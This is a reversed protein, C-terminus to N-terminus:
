ARVEFVMNFPTETAKRFHSYGADMAVKRLKLEGAQAGLGLGVEQSLSAPTCIMTSAGYFVRGVPNLNDKLCDHAFPEVIMWTGDDALTEKVHKGAGVPDGMDHLCDFMAVLDYDAPPFDKASAQEFTIRGAVGAEAAAAKAREISPLHYDFGFFTSNPYAEALLITSAGHGCGVDAVIAGAELKEKLGDIAPIWESILHSNYGPRFFRETGRFLCASHEHWGVGSGTRFANAIKPEDLWMSQVVDFAGTFFAPSNEEAFVMAQEPTLYFRETDDDYSVYDAAAQASLWERVYREKVGVKDALEASTMPTGDAMAKFLGLHDGLTVLVGSVAAGLDGVLRGVLNDLKQMDPERM